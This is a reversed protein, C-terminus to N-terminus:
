KLEGTYREALRRAMQEYVALQARLVMVRERFFELDKRDPNEPDFGAHANLMATAEGLRSLLDRQQEVLLDQLDYLRSYRQVEDYEMHGLAGTRAATRWSTSSLDAMNVHLLLENVSTKKTRLLETAFRIAADFKELDDPTSALTKDLDKKNDAIERAITARAQAVLERNHNWEVLGNILLAILVGATVTVFQFVYDVLTYKPPPAAPPPPPADLSETM